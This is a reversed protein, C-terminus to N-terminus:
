EKFKFNHILVEVPKGDAPPHGEFLWLNIHVPMDVSSISAPPQTCNYAAALDKSDIASGNFTSFIVSDRSWKFQQNSYNSKQEYEKTYSSNQFGKQAPWVTYNLNPWSNNGWRSFEIDIEDYGDNGSYNFLGLVINKDFKDIAGEVIFNYTGFGFTQQSTIEPCLWNGSLSDKHLYLHLTGAPDVWVSQQSFYNPGPGQTDRTERVNWKYGSFLIVKGKRASDEMNNQPIDKHCSGIHLYNCFLTLIVIPVAVRLM